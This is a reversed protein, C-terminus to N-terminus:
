QILLRLEEFWKQTIAPAKNNLFIPKDNTEILIVPVRDNHIFLLSNGYEKVNFNGKALTGVGVGNTKLTIEPMEDLLEVSELEDIPWQQGYMGTIELQDNEVTVEYDQYTFIMLASVGGVVIVFLSISIIYSKKRKHKLEYKSLYIFGGFLFLLICGFLTEGAYTFSTFLLPLLLLTGIATIILMGGAKQPYGNQLYEKQEDETMTAFGSLLFYAQKYRIAWGLLSFIMIMIILTVVLGIM